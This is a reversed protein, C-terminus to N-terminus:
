STSSETGNSNKEADKTAIDINTLDSIAAQLRQFDAGFPMSLLQDKDADEFVRDDTGPVYGYAIITAVMRDKPTMNEDTRFSLITDLDLQKVEIQQGFFAIVKSKPKTNVGNFIAARIQARTPKTTEDSM